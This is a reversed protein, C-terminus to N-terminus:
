RYVDRRNGIALVLVLLRDDHLEYIVRFDGTRVRWQDVRGVLKKAGPPHPNEALLEVTAQIRTRQPASLKRLQRLAAPSVDIQYTM